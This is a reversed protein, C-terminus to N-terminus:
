RQMPGFVEACDDVIERAAHPRARVALARRMDEIREPASLLAELECRLAEPDLPRSGILRAGGIASLARANASQHDDAAHPYPVLLAPLGALALEAVTLAGSRCVALDAWRYREPMDDTFDVVSARLGARRYAEAV